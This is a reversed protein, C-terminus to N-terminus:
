QENKVLWTITIKVMLKITFQVSIDITTIMVKFKDISQHLDSAARTVANVNEGINSTWWQLKYLYMIQVDLFQQKTVFSRIFNGKYM